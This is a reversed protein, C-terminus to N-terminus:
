RARDRIRASLENDDSAYEFANLVETALGLGRAEDACTDCVAMDLTESHVRHHAEDGKLCRQCRM